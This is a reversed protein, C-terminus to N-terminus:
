GLTVDEIVWVRRQDLETLKSLEQGLVRRGVGADRDFGMFGLAVQDMLEPVALDDVRLDRLQKVPKSFGAILCGMLVGAVSTLSQMLQLHRPLQGDPKMLGAATVWGELSPREDWGRVRTLHFVFEM